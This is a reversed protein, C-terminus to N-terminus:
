GPRHRIIKVAYLITLVADFIFGIIYFYLFSFCCLLSGSVRKEEKAEAFVKDMIAKAEDVYTSACSHTM